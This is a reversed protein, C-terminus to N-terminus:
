GAHSEVAAVSRLLRHMKSGSGSSDLASLVLQEIQPFAVNEWSESQMEEETLDLLNGFVTRQRILDCLHADTLNTETNLWDQWKTTDAAIAACWLKVANEKCADPSEFASCIALGILGIEAKEPPDKAEEFKELAHDLLEDPTLLSSEQAAAEGFLEEQAIALERKKEITRRRKSVHENEVMRNALSAGSLATLTDPLKGRSANELLSTTVTDYDGRHIAHIWRYPRLVEETDMWRSLDDPCIAGYKLVHGFHKRDLFWKLVFAGFTMNSGVDQEEALQVLLPELPFSARDGREEHYLAIQCLGGFFRHAVCLEFLFQDKKWGNVKRLLDFAEKQATSYKAKTDANPCSAYGDGCAQLWSAVVSEAVTHSATSSNYKWDELQKEWISQLSPHSTWVPIDSESEVPPLQNASLDYRPSANDERFSLADEVARCFWQLFIAQQHENESSEQIGELWEAVDGPTLRSLQEKEWITKPTTSCLAWFVSVEQGIALLKWRCMSSISRYIGTQQLLDVLAFHWELPHERSSAEGKNQLATAVALIAQELDATGATSLSPPLQITKDPHTYADWFTARLHQTLTHVSSSNHSRGTTPTSIPTADHLRVRLAIGSADWATTGHTQCDNTLTGPLIMPVSGELFIDLEQLTNDDQLAVALTTHTRTTTRSSAGSGLRIPLNADRHVTLIACAVGNDAVCLGAVHVQRAPDPFRNLWVLAQVTFDDGLRIWYLRSSGEQEQLITLVLLHLHGANWTAQLVNSVKQGELFGSVEVVKPPKFLVKHSDTPTVTWVQLRGNQPVAVFQRGGTLDDDNDDRELPVTVVIPSRPSAATNQLGYDDETSSALLRAFLGGTRQEARVPQVHLAVPIPTQQVWFVRGKSTGLLLYFATYKWSVNLCSLKEDNELLPVSVSAASAVSKAALEKQHIEWLLLDGTDPNAIYVYVSNPAQPPVQLALLPPSRGQLKPHSLKLSPIQHKQDKFTTAWPPTFWLHFSYDSDVDADNSKQLGLCHWRSQSAGVCYTSDSSELIIAEPLCSVCDVSWPSQQTPKMLPLHRLEGRSPTLPSM